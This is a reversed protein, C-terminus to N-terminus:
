LQQESVSALKEFSKLSRSSLCMKMMESPSFTKPCSPQRQSLAQQLPSAKQPSSPQSDM